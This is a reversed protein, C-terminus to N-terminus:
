MSSMNKENLDSKGRFVRDPNAKIFDYLAKKFDIDKVLLFTGQEIYHNSIFYCFSSFKNMDLKFLDSPHGFLIQTSDFEIKNIINSFEEWINKTAIEEQNINKIKTIDM